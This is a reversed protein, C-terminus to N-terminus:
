QRARDAVDALLAALRPGWVHLSYAEEVKRRGAAGMRWRLDPDRLLTTLAADWEEHTTALIGNVGHEIIEANVGVPSAVVPLGCAMYQILKYGCKGRAWPSDDLPMVGIDMEQICGVETEESWDRQELWPNSAAARVAGVTMLRAGSRSATEILTPLMPAMYDTWTSPSGIWGICPADGGTRVAPCYIGTDVVTPVIEVRRAGARIARDALYSNGATVLASGAMMHDLKRGLLRRVPGLRHLDYRHFVADDYDLAYRVGRPLVAREIAWPLWPLLEAEIWLLDAHRAQGLDVLRRWLAALTAGGATRGAYISRLYADDFLPHMDPQLGAARLNADPQYMRLRSSAGLRSYRPFVSIKM